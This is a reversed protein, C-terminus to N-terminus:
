IDTNYYTPDQDEPDNTNSSSRNMNGLTDYDACRSTPDLTLYDGEPSEIEGNHQLGRNNQEESPSVPKRNKFLVILVVSLMVAASIVGLHLAQRKVKITFTVAASRQFGYYNEAVCYFRGGHSSNFSSIHYSQGSGVSSAENEKFWHYTWAPPNSDCSCRLTVSSGKVIKTSPHVSISTKKPPYRVNLTVAPSPLHEYQTVACSYRGTDDSGVSQLLLENTSVSESFPISNNYWVIKPNHRLNCTTKCFLNAQNGEIVEGFIVVSLVNVNLKIGPYFLRNQNVDNTMIGFYYIKQDMDSVDSLKLYFNQKQLSYKVRGKYHPEDSLNTYKKYGYPTITWFTETVTLNNPYKFRGSLYITSGKMACEEPVSYEVSWARGCVGPIMLLSILSFHRFMRGKKLHEFAM